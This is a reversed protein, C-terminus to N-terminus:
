ATPVPYLSKKLKYPFGNVTGSFVATQEGAGSMLRMTASAGDGFLYIQDEACWTVTSYDAGLETRSEVGMTAKVTFENSTSFNEENSCGIFASTCFLMGAALLFNKKM